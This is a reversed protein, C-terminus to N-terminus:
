GLRKEVYEEIEGLTTLKSMDDPPITIDFEDEIGMAIKVLDFSDANFNSVLSAESVFDGEDIAVIGAVVKYLRERITAM